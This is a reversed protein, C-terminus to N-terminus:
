RKWCSRDAFGAGYEPGTAHIAFVGCTDGRQVGLPQATVLYGAADARGVQLRYHGQPSEAAAWGLTALDPAYVPNRARWREQALQVQLLASIADSRRAGAVLGSFTPVTITALIAVIALTTLLEILSFGHILPGNMM